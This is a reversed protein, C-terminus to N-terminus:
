NNSKMEIKEFIANKIDKKSLEPIQMINVGVTYGLKKQLKIVPIIPEIENSNAVSFIITLASLFFFFVSNKQSIM